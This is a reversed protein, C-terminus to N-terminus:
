SHADFNTENKYTNWDAYDKGAYAIISGTEQYWCNYDITKNELSGFVKLAGSKGNMGINNKITVAGETTSYFASSWEDRTKYVTNNFVEINHTNKGIHIGASASNFVINNYIEVDRLESYPGSIYIANSKRPRTNLFYDTYYVINYRIIIDKHIGGYGMVDIGTHCSNCITNYEIVVNTSPSKYSISYIGHNGIEYINNNRIVADLAYYAIGDGYEDEREGIHHIINKEIIWKKSQNTEDWGGVVGRRYAFMLEFDSVCIYNRTGSNFGICYRRWSVEISRFKEDPNSGSVIYLIGSNWCWDYENILEDLSKRQAGWIIDGTKNIFWLGGPKNTFDKTWKNNNETWGTISDSGMIIPNNGTGYASFTIYGSSNGSSSVTLQERWIGGRKFLVSDGPSFDMSNVKNITKWPSFHSLGSNSDDGIGADIYYTAAESHSGFMFFVAGCILLSSILIKKQIHQM